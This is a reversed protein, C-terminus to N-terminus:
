EVTTFDPPTDSYKSLVVDIGLTMPGVPLDGQIRVAIGTHREVWLHISGKIGFVGEFKDLKEQEIVEGPYPRPTLVVEVVEFTGAGTEMRREEGRSLTLEWVRTKDILPFRLSEHGERILTRAMFVASLMDLTGEPVARYAAERWIRQGPPAGDDTDRRYSAIPGITKGERVPDATQAAPLESTGVQVERRRTESGESVSSYVIRPWEFPYLRTELTSKVEYWAYDGKARLRISAVEGAPPDGGKPEGLLLSPVYPEVRCTQTVTGVSPEFVAIELFAEYVLTEARPVVLPAGGPTPQYRFSRDSEEVASSEQADSVQPSLARASSPALTWTAALAVAALRRASELASPIVQATSMPAAEHAITTGSLGPYPAGGPIRPGRGPASFPQEAPLRDTCRSSDPSGARRFRGAARM